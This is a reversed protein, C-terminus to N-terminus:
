WRGLVLTIGFAFATAGTIIQFLVLFSKVESVERGERLV